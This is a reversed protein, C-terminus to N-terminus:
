RESINLTMEKEVGTDFVSHTGNLFGFRELFRLPASLRDRSLATLHRAIANNEDPTPWLTGATMDNIVQNGIPVLTHGEVSYGVNALLLNWQRKFGIPTSSDFVGLAELSNTLAEFQPRQPHHSPLLLEKRHLIPPNLSDAYSRKTQISRKLDVSISNQLEPFADDFFRPYLLFSVHNAYANLRVVNFDDTGIRSFCRARDILAQHDHSSSSIAEVHMYLRLGLSKGVQIQSRHQM